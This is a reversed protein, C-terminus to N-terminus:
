IHRREGTYNGHSAPFRTTVTFCLLQAPSMQDALYPPTSASYPPKDGRGVVPNPLHVPYAIAWLAFRRLLARRRFTGLAGGSSSRLRHIHISSRIDAIRLHHLRCSVSSRPSGQFQGMVTVRPHLGEESTFFLMPRCLPYQISWCLEHLVPFWGCAPSNLRFKIITDDGIPSLWNLRVKVCGLRTATVKRWAEPSPDGLIVSKLYYGPVAANPRGSSPDLGRVVEWNTEPYDYGWSEEPLVELLARLSSQTAWLTSLVPEELHRCVRALYTTSKPSTLVLQSAILRSIEDIKFVRRTAGDQIM